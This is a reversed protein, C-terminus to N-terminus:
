HRIQRVFNDFRATTLTFTKGLGLVDQAKLSKVGLLKRGAEDYLMCVVTDAKELGSTSWKGYYPDAKRTRAKMKYLRSSKVNVKGLEKDLFDYDAQSGQTMNCDELILDGRIKAFELEARRGKANAHNSFTWDLLQSLDLGFGVALQRLDAESKVDYYREMMRFAFKISKYDGLYKEVVEKSPELKEAIMGKQKECLCARLAADSVGFRSAMKKTSGWRLLEEKLFELTRGRLFELPSLLRQEKWIKNLGKADLGLYTGFAKKSGTM